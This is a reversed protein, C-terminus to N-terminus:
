YMPSRYRVTGSDQSKKTPKMSVSREAILLAIEMRLAKHKNRSFGPPSCVRATLRRMKRPAGVQRVQDVSLGDPGAHLPHSSQLLFLHRGALSSIRSDRCPPCVPPDIRREDVCFGNVALM